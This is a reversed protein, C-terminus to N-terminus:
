TDSQYEDVWQRGLRSLTLTSETRVLFGLDELEAAVVDPDQVDDRRDDGTMSLLVAYVDYSYLWHLLAACGDPRLLDSKKLVVEAIPRLRDALDPARLYWVWKKHTPHHHESQMLVRDSGFVSFHVPTPEPMVRVEIVGDAILTLVDVVDYWEAREWHRRQKAILERADVRREPKFHCGLVSRYGRDHVARLVRRHAPDILARAEGTVHTVDVSQDLVLSELDDNVIRYTEGNGALDPPSSAIVHWRVATEDIGLSRLTRGLTRESETVATM